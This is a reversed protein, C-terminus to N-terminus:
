TWGCPSCGPSPPWQSTSGPWGASCGRSWLRRRPRGRPWRAVLAPLGATATHLDAVAEASQGAGVLRAVLAAVEAPMLTALQELTGQRAVAEDLEALERTDITPRRAIVM